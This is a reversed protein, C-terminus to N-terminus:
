DADYQMPLLYIESGIARAYDAAEKGGRIKEYPKTIGVYVKFTKGKALFMERPLYIMEINFKIGLKKRLNAKKYFDLSNNGDFFLPVIDRKYQKCRNVFSTRWELDCVMKIKEGNYPVKRLRSVLGAPFIIIPDSGAFAEDLKRFSERSQHGFKNIPLFVNELPKVAMLLDNVVFWVQGGYHRQILEILAMGDLGGLPHNCVFVVRRQEKPPLNEEGKVEIKIDLADLVGRCFEAGTKGANAELLANLQDQCITNELKETLWSPILRSLRPLRSKLVQKVDIKIVEGTQESGNMSAFNIYKAPFAMFGGM